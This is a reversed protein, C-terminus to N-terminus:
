LKVSDFIEKILPRLQGLYGEFVLKTKVAETVFQNRWTQLWFEIKAIETSAKLPLTARYGAIDFAVAQETNSITGIDYAAKVNYGNGFFYAAYTRGNDRKVNLVKVFDQSHTLDNLQAEAAVVGSIVFLLLALFGMGLRIKDTLALKMLM